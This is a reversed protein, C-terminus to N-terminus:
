SHTTSTLTPGRLRGRLLGSDPALLVSGFYLLSACAIITPGSATGLHYSVLLGAFGSVAAQAAAHVLQEPLTAHWLRAAAAPLMMLGVSMLTGLAQFGVVLNAVVLFLFAQQWVAPYRATGFGTSRHGARLFLPDFTDLVLGRYLVALLLVSASAVGAVLLLGPQDVGLASGFLIHLLDLPTGRASVMGVGVALASLYVASLSTNQEQQTHRSLWAALTTVLLGALLGGFAMAWLSLGAVWFGAAVGPLIAHSLADGMLGMRRLNLFVGLPASGLALALTAVLSRRMFAFEVFPDIVIAYGLTALGSM